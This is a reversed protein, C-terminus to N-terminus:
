RAAGDLDDDIARALDGPIGRTELPPDPDNSWSARLRELAMRNPVCEAGM